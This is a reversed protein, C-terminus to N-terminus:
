LHRNRFRYIAPRGDDPSNKHLTSSECLVYFHKGGPEFTGDTCEGDHFCGEAGTTANRPGSEFAAMMWGVYLKRTRDQERVGTCQGVRPPVYDETVYAPNVLVPASNTDEECIGMGCVEPDGQGCPYADEPCDCACQPWYLLHAGQSEVLFFGDVDSAAVVRTPTELPFGYQTDSITVSEKRNWRAIAMYTGVDHADEFRGDRMYDRDRAWADVLTGEDPAGIAEASDFFVFRDKGSFQPRMGGASDPMPEPQGRKAAPVYWLQGGAAVVLTNGDAGLAIDMDDARAGLGSETAVERTKGSALEHRVWSVAGERRVSWAAWQGDASIAPDGFAEAPDADLVMRSPSDGRRDLAFIGKDTRFVVWNGDFSSVAVEVGLTGDEGDMLPALPQGAASAVLRQAGTQEDAWIALVECRTAGVLQVVKGSGLTAAGEMMDADSEDDQRPWTPTDVPCRQLESAAAAPSSPASEVSGTQGGCASLVACLWALRPLHTPSHISTM